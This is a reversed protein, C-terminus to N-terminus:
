SLSTPILPLIFFMKGKYYIKKHKMYVGFYIYTIAKKNFPRRNNEGMYVIYMNKGIYARM